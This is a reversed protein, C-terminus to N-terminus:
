LGLLSKIFPYTPAIYYLFLLLLLLGIVWEALVFWTFVTSYKLYKLQIRPNILVVFSFWCTYFLLSYRNKSQNDPNEKFNEEMIQRMTGHFFILYIFIYVIYIWVAFEFFRFAGHYGNGVLKELGVSKYYKLAHINLLHKNMCNYRQDYIIEDHKVKASIEDLNNQDDKFRQNISQELISYFNKSITYSTTDAKFMAPTTFYIESFSQGGIKLNDLDPGDEQVNIRCNIFLSRNFASSGVHFINVSDFKTNTLEMTNTLYSRYFNFNQLYSNSCDIGNNFVSNEFNCNYINNLNSRVLKIQTDDSTYKYNSRIYHQYLPIQGRYILGISVQDKFKDGTLYIIKYPNNNYIYVKRAFHCDNSISLVQDRLSDDAYEVSGKYFQSYVKKLGITELLTSKRRNFNDMVPYEDEINNYLYVEGEFCSSDIQFQPGLINAHLGAYDSDQLMNNNILVVTDKFCFHKFLCPPVSCSYFLVPKTFIVTVTASSDSHPSIIQGIICHNFLLPVNIYITDNKGNWKSSDYKNLDLVGIYTYSILTSNEAFKNLGTSDDSFRALRFAISKKGFIPIEGNVSDGDLTLKVINTEISDNYRASKKIKLNTNQKQYDVTGLQFLATTQAMAFQSLLIFPLFSFNRM